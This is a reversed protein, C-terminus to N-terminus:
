KSGESKRPNASVIFGNESVQIAVYQEKGNYEFKYISRPNRKGQQGVITGKTVAEMIYTPLEDNSIGKGNFESGHRDIIHNLGASSNGTEIWVIKNNKDRAILVVNEPTISDGNEQVAAILEKGDGSTGTFLGSIGKSM